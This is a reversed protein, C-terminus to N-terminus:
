AAKEKGHGLLSLGHPWLSLLTCAATLGSSLQLVAVFGQWGGGGTLMYGIGAGACSAGCQALLGMLGSLSGSLHAPFLELVALPLLTKPGNIAMGALFLGTRLWWGSVETEASDLSALVGLWSDSTAPVTTPALMCLTLACMIASLACVLSKSRAGLASGAWLDALIGCCFSGAIGGVENWLMLEMSQAVSVHHREILYLGTWEHMGKLTFYTLTNALLLM